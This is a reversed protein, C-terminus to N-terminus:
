CWELASPWAFSEASTVPKFAHHSLSCASDVAFCSSVVLISDCVVWDSTVRAIQFPCSALQLFPERGVASMTLLLLHSTILADSLVIDCRQSSPKWCQKNAAKFIDGRSHTQHTASNTQVTQKCQKNAAKNAAGCKPCCPIEWGMRPSSRAKHLSEPTGTNCRHKDM